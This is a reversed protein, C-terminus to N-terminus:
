NILNFSFLFWALKYNNSVLEYLMNQCYVVFKIFGLFNNRIKVFGYLLERGFSSAFVFLKVLVFHQFRCLNQKCKDYIKVNKRELSRM